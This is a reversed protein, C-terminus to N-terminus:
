LLPKEIMVTGAGEVHTLMLEQRHHVAWRHLQHNVWLNAENGMVLGQRDWEVPPILDLGTKILIDTKANDFRNRYAFRDCPTVAHYDARFLIAFAVSSNVELCEVEMCGPLGMVGLVWKMLCSGDGIACVFSDKVHPISIVTDGEVQVDAMQCGKDGGTTVVVVANGRLTVRILHHSCM